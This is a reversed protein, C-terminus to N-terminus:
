PKKKARWVEMTDPSGQFRVDNDALIDETASAAAKRPFVFTEGGLGYFNITIFESRGDRLIEVLHQLNKIRIGDVSDVAWGSPQWYGNTMKHPFFPSPIVVIQEGPFAPTASRRTIIPSGISTLAAISDRNFSSCMQATAPTFVLPGFVFYSPYAGKLDTMLVPREYKVPLQIVEQKGQRLRTLPVKGDRAIKQVMYDFRVRLNGGINIMGENDIPTDGIKTIVDWEQLLHAPDQDNPRHVAVGEVDKGLKLFERLGPNQLKQTEDYIAPKGDYHGDAVDALFLDIEENPIIYSINQSNNLSSFALGIMKDDAVAPGGSNGPNIAADVQIRLGSTPFIYPVFEIRSVIGKTISLSTGGVPFGYAMVTDKIAPLVSARALPRHTDFFSQDDLELVALDIDYSVAVVTAPLKDGSKSAQVQVQSAYAVVHANTLIRRGEIVVGSGTAEQASQKTWPRFYDPYRATAFVKVVSNEIMDSVAPVSEAPKAEPAAANAGFTAAALVAFATIVSCRRLLRLFAPSPHM